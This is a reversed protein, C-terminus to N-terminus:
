HAPIQLERVMRSESANGVFGRVVFSEPPVRLTVAYARFVLAAPCVMGDGTRPDPVVLPRLSFRVEIVGGVARTFGEISDGCPNDFAYVVRLEGSAQRSATIVSDVLAQSTKGLSQTRVRTWGLSSDSVNRSSTSPERQSSSPATGCALITVAVLLYTIDFPMDPGLNLSAAPVM